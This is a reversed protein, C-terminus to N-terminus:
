AEQFEESDIDHWWELFSMTRMPCAALVYHAEDDHTAVAYLEGAILARLAAEHELANGCWERVPVAAAADIQEAIRMAQSRLWRLAPRPTRAQRGGLLIPRESTFAACECWYGESGDRPILM